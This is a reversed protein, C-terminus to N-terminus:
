PEMKQLLDQTLQSYRENLIILHENRVESDVPLHEIRQKEDLFWVALEQLTRPRREPPTAQGVHTQIMAKLEGAHREVTEPPQSDTMYRNMFEILRERPFRERIEAEHTGYLIECSARAATKRSQETATRERDRRNAEEYKKHDYSRQPLHMVGRFLGLAKLVPRLFWAYFVKFVPYAGTLLVLVVFVGLLAGGVVGSAHRDHSAIYGVFPVALLVIGCCVKFSFFLAAKMALAPREHYWMTLTHIILYVFGCASFFALAWFATVFADEM